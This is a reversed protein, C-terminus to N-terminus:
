KNKLKIKRMSYNNNRSFVYRCDIKEGLHAINFPPDNRTYKAISSANHNSLNNISLDIIEQEKESFKAQPIITLYYRHLIRNYYPEKRLFLQNKDILEQTIDNFHQPKIGKRSKIYTEKTLLKGYLEYYNFDIFYLLTCLVTKGLNPKNYCKSLIYTILKIYTDKDFKM